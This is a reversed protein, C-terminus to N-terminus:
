PDVRYGRLDVGRASAHRAEKRRARARRTVRVAHRAVPSGVKGEFLRVLCPVCLSAGMHQTPNGCLNCIM